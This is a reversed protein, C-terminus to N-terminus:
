RMVLYVMLGGLIFGISYSWPNLRRSEKQISLLREIANEAGIYGMRFAHIVELIKDKDARRQEM